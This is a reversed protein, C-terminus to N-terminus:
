GSVQSLHPMCSAPRRRHSKRERGRQQPGQGGSGEAACRDGSVERATRLLARLAWTRSRGSGSAPGPAQPRFVGRRIAAHLTGEDCWESVIQVVFKGPAAGLQKLVAACDVPTPGFRQMQTGEFSDMAAAVSLNYGAAQGAAPDEAVHETCSRTRSKPALPLEGVERSVVQDFTGDLQCLACDFTQVLFPHALMKAVLAEM